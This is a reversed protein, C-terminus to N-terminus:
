SGKEWAAGKGTKNYWFMSRGNALTQVRKHLLGEDVLREIRANLGPTVQRWLREAIQRRSLVEESTSFCLLVDEDSIAATYFMSPQKADQRQM